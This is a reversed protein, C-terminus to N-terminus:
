AIACLLLVSFIIKFLIVVLVRIKQLHGELKGVHKTEVATNQKGRKEKWYIM